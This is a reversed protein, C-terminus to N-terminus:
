WCSAHPLMDEQITSASTTRCQCVLREICRPSVSLLLELCTTLSARGTAAGLSSWVLFFSCSSDNEHRKCSPTGFSSDCMKLSYIASPFKWCTSPPPNLTCPAPHLTCPVPHLTCPAPHLTCPAPNGTTAQPADLLSSGGVRLDEVGFGLGSVRFGLGWARFWLGSVRM